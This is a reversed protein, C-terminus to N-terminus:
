GDAKEPAQRGHPCTSPAHPRLGLLFAPFNLLFRNCPCGKCRIAHEAEERVKKTEEAEAKGEEIEAIEILSSLRYHRHRFTMCMANNIYWVANILHPPFCNRSLLLCGMMDM